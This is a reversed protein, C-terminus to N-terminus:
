KGGFVHPAFYRGSAAPKAADDPMGGDAKAAAPADRTSGTPLELGDFMNTFGPMSAGEGMASIFVNAPPLSHEALAAAADLPAGLRSLPQPSLLPPGRAGAGGAGAPHKPSMPLAGGGPCKNDLPSLVGRMPFGLPSDMSAPLPLGAARPPSHPVAAAPPHTQADLHPAVGAPSGTATSSGGVSGGAGTAASVIFSAATQGAASGAPAWAGSASARGARDGVDTNGTVAAIANTLSPFGHMTVDLPSQLHQHQQAQAPAGVAAAGAENADVPPLSDDARLLSLWGATTNGTESPVIANLPRLGAALPAVPLSAPAATTGGQCQVTPALQAQAQPKTQKARQRKRAPAGGQKDPAARKTAAKSKAGAPAKQSPAQAKTANKGGAGPKTKGGACAKAKPNAKPTAKAIAGGTPRPQGKSSQRPRPAQSPKGEHPERLPSGQQEKDRLPAGCSGATQEALPLGGLIAREDEDGARGITYKLRFPSPCGLEEFYTGVAYVGNEELSVMEGDISFFRVIIEDGATTDESALKSPEAATQVTMDRGGESSPAAVTAAGGGTAAGSGAGESTGARARANAGGSACAQADSTTVVKKALHRRISEFRKSRPVVLERVPAVGAAKVAAHVGAHLPYLELVIKGGPVRAQQKAQAVAAAERSAASATGGMVAAAAKAAAAQDGRQLTATAMAMHVSQLDSSEVTVGLPALLDKAKRMARYYLNRVQEVTKAVRGQARAAEALKAQLGAFDKGVSVLSEFFIREEDPEWKVWPM